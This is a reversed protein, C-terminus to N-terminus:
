TIYQINHENYPDQLFIIIIERETSTKRRKKTPLLENLENTDFVGKDRLEAIILKCLKNCIQKTYCNDCWKKKM